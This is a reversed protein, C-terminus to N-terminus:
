HHHGSPGTDTDCSTPPSPPSPADGELGLVLGALATGEALCEMPPADDLLRHLFGAAFADGAGVPEM